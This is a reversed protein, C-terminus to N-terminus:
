PHNAVELQAALAAGPIHIRYQRAASGFLTFFGKQGGANEYNGAQTLESQAEVGLNWELKQDGFDVQGKVGWRGGLGYGTEQKYDLIFPHDFEHTRLYVSALSQWADSGKYEIRAMTYLASRDISSNQAAAGARAARPNQQMQERTLGGPLQYFLQSHLLSLDLKLKKSPELQVRALTNERNMASHDRYGNWQQRTHMLKVQGGSFTDTYNVQYRQLGYSGQTTGVSFQPKRNEPLHFFVVGGNGTGYRSGMPGKLIDTRGILAPDLMQLPTVGNARTFPIDNWYVKVNRVGFPSRLSSGRISLRYSATAREEM